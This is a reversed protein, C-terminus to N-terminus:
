KKYENFKKEFKETIPGSGIWKSILVNKVANAEEESFLPWSAFSTNLM